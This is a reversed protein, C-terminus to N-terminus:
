CCDQNIYVSTITAFKESKVLTYMHCDSHVHVHVHVHINFNQVHINFKQALRSIYLMGAHAHIYM